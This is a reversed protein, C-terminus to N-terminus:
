FDKLEIEGASDPLLCVFGKEKKWRKVAESWSDSRDIFQEIFATGEDSMVYDIFEQPLIVHYKVVYKWTDRDWYYKGDTYTYPGLLRKGPKFPHGYIGPSMWYPQTTRLYAIVKDPVAYGEQVYDYISERGIQLEKFPTLCIKQRRVEIMRRARIEDETKIEHYPVDLVVIEANCPGNVTMVRKKSMGYEGSKVRDATKNSVWAYDGALKPNIIKVEAEQFSDDMMEISIKDGVSIVDEDELKVTLNIVQGEYDEYPSGAVYIIKM